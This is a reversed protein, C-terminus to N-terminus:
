RIIQQNDTEPQNDLTEGEVALRNRGNRKAVYLMQDARKFFEEYYQDTDAIEAVGLSLSLDIKEGNTLIFDRRCRQLIRTGVVISEKLETEPLLIGFEDGGLRGLTDHERIQEELISACYKIAEDGALHGHTDNITKLRDIDILILSVPRNYRKARGFEDIAEKSFIRRNKINTLPDLSALKSLELKLETEEAHAKFSLRRHTYLRASIGIGIINTLIHMGAIVTKTEESFPAQFAQFVTVASFLCSVSVRIRLPTFLAFYYINILVISVGIYAVYSPSVTSNIFINIVAGVIMYSTVAWDHHEPKSSKALIVIAIASILSVGLRMGLFIFFKNGWGYSHYDSNILSLSAINSLMIVLIAQIGDSKLFAQRYPSEFKGLDPEFVPIRLMLHNLYVPQSIM